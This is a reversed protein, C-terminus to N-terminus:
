RRKPIWSSHTPTTDIKSMTVIASAPNTIAIGAASNVAMTAAIVPPGLEHAAPRITKRSSKATNPSVTQTQTRSLM